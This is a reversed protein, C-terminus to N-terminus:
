IKPTAEVLRKALTVREPTPFDYCNMLRGAARQIAATLKPHCHGVNTVLVGSTLDIFKNGDVDTIIVGQASDWVIPAQQSTTGSEYKASEEMYKKSLPGPLQGKVNAYM